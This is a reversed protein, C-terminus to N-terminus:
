VPSSITLSCLVFNVYLIYAPEPYPGTIDSPLIYVIFNLVCFIVASIAAATNPIDANPLTGTVAASLVSVTPSVLLLLLLPIACLRFIRSVRFAPHKKM